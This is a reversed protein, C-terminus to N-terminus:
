SCCGFFFVVDVFVVFVVVVVVVFVVNGDDISISEVVRKILSDENLRFSYSLALSYNKEKLLEVIRQPTVDVGLDEPQFSLSGDLSFILLGETTAAAWSRGLNFIYHM